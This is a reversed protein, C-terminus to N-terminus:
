RPMGDDPRSETDLFRLIEDRRKQADRYGLDILESCFKGESLLYSLLIGGGRPM